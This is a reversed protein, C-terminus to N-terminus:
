SWLKPEVNRVTKGNRACIIKAMDFYESCILFSILLLM